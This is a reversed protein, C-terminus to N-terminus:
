EFESAHTFSGTELVVEFVSVAEEAAGGSVM